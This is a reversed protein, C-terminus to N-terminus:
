RVITQLYEELEQTLKNYEPTMEEIQTKDTANIWKHFFTSIPEELMVEIYRVAGLYDVIQVDEFRNKNDNYIIWTELNKENGVHILKSIEKLQYVKYKNNNRSTYTRM